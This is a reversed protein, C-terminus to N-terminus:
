GDDQWGSTPSSYRSFELIDYHNSNKGPKTNVAIPPNAIYKNSFLYYVITTLLYNWILNGMIRVYYLVIYYNILIWMM